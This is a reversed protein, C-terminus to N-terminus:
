PALSFVNVNARYFWTANQLLSRTPVADSHVGNTIQRLRLGQHQAEYGSNVTEQQQTRAHTRVSGGM